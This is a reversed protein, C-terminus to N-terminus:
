NELAQTSPESLKHPCVKYLKKGCNCNWCLIQYIARDWGRQQALSMRTTGSGHKELYGDGRVHDLTLFREDELGCCYCIRGLADFMRARLVRSWKKARANDQERYRGHYRKVYEKRRTPDKFPM